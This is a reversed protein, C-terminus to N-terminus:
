DTADEAPYASSRPGSSHRSQSPDPTQPALGVNDILRTSGLRAAAVLLSRPRLATEPRFTDADVIAVYDVDFCPVASPVEGRSRARRETEGISTIPLLLAKTTAAIVDKATAGVEGAAARGALLSRYLGPAVARQQPTLYANRSSMALGDPERVTPSGTVEVPLDLDGVLRRIVGRQQADKQGLLLVDPQVIDLLKTVVLAVGDFHGPRSAGEYTEALPGGVRVGTAFGEPYMEGPSPAFVVEVGRAELLANDRTEDRPYRDLDEGEGFQQPNVFVSAVVSACRQRAADVLSLHGEHLAGMTPTFGVPRPLGCLAARTEAITRTVKV